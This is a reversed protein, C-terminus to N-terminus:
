ELVERSTREERMIVKLLKMASNHTQVKNTWGTVQFPCRLQKWDKGVACLKATVLSMHGKPLKEQPAILSAPGLLFLDLCLLPIAFFNQWSLVLAGELGPRCGLVDSGIQSVFKIPKHVRVEQVLSAGVKWLWWRSAHQVYLCITLPSLHRWFLFIIWLVQKERLAVWLLIDSGECFFFFIYIELAGVKEGPDETNHVPGRTLGM